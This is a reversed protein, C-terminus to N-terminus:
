LVAYNRIPVCVLQCLWHLQNSFSFDSINIIYLVLIVLVMYKYFVFLFYRGYGHIPMVTLMNAMLQDRKDM